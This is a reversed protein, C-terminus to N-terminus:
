QHRKRNPEENDLLMQSKCAIRYLNLNNSMFQTQSPLRQSPTWVEYAANPISIIINYCDKENIRASTSGHRACAAGSRRRQGHMCALIKSYDLVFSPLTALTLSAYYSRHRRSFVLGM